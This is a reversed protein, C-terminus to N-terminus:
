FAHNVYQRVQRPLTTAPDASEAHDKLTLMAIPKIV